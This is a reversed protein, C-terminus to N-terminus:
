VYYYVAEAVGTVSDVQVWEIDYGVALPNAVMGTEVGVSTTIWYYATNSDTVYTNAGANYSFTAAGIASVTDVAGSEDIITAPVATTNVYGAADTTYLWLGTAGFLTADLSTLTTVAGDVYVTYEYYNVGSQPVTNFGVNMVYAYGTTASVTASFEFLVGATYGAAATQGYSVTDGIIAANTSAFGTTVAPYNGAGLAVTPDFYFVPTTSTITYTGPSADTFTTDGAGYAATLATATTIAAGTVDTAFLSVTGDAYEVYRCLYGTSGPTIYTTTQDPVIGTTGAAVDYIGMTGDQTFLKVQAANAFSGYYAYDLVLGYENAPVAVNSKIYVVSGNDDLYFTSDVNYMGAAAWGGLTVLTTAASPALGTNRMTEGNVTASANANNYATMTGTVSDALEINTVGYSDVYWLIVDGAVLGDYGSVTGPLANTCVDPITVNGSTANVIPASSLVTVTKNICLVTDALADADNNIFTIIVGRGNIATIAAATSATGNLYYVPNGGVVPTEAVAIFSPDFPNTLNALATGNTSTGIVDDVTYPGTLTFGNKTWNYVTVGDLVYAATTTVGQVAALSGAAINIGAGTTDYANQYSQTNGNYVVQAVGTYAAFGYLACEERTAAATYDVALVLIGKTQADAITKMAWNAGTYEDNEGYGVACLLMKAFEVATVNGAPDFTGDGRGNIIGLAACYEIFPASWRTVAVDSFSSVTTTLADARETGILMYTIIKAAQERTVLGTPDFSGDGMGSLFGLATFVDVAEVYTVDDFDSYDDVNAAAATAMFTFAMAIVLVVALLKKLNKM